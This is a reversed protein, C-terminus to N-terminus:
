ISTSRRDDLYNGWDSYGKLSFDIYKTLHLGYSSVYSLYRLIWKTAKWHSELPSHMFQFVKNDPFAFELHTITEYQLIGVVSRYLKPDSFVDSGSNTLTPSVVVPSNDGKAQDMNTKKLLDQIYKHQSLFLSGDNKQQVEVGLFYHM